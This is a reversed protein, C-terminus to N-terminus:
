DNSFFNDKKFLNIWAMPISVIQLEVMIDPRFAPADLREEVPLYNLSKSNKYLIKNAQSM